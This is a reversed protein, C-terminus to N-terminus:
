RCAQGFAFAPIIYNIRRLKKPNQACVTPLNFGVYPRPSLLTYIPADCSTVNDVNENRASLYDRDVAIFNEAQM